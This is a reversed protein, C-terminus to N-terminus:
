TPRGGGGELMAVHGRTRSHRPPGTCSVGKGALPSTVPVAVAVSVPLAVWRSMVRLVVTPM